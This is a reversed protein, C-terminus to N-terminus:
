SPLEPPPQDAPSGAPTMTHISAAQSAHRSMMAHAIRHIEQRLAAPSLVEIADGCALIWSLLDATRLIAVALIVSGGPGEEVQLTGVPPHQRLTDVLPPRCALRVVHPGSPEAGGQHLHRELLRAPVPRFRRRLISADQLQAVPIRLIRRRDHCYALLVMGTSAPLLRYPDAGRLRTERRASLQYALKVSRREAIAKALTTVVAEARPDRLSLALDMQREPPADPPQTALAQQLKETVNALARAAAPEAQRSVRQAAVRLALAEDVTLTIAPLAGPAALRYGHDFYVPFGAATLAELDRRLTRESIGCTRALASAEMGAQTHLLELLKVLRESRPVVGGENRPSYPIGRTGWFGCLM